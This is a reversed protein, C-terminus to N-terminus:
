GRRLAMLLASVFLCAHHLAQDAQYAGNIPTQLEAFKPSGTRQLVWRVPWRRDLFAHTAASFVTGALMGRWSPRLGSAPLVAALAAAQTLQYGGVHGAMARAQVAGSPPDETSEAPRVKCAAQHDTQCIHDGVNHAVLLAGLTTTFILPNIRM